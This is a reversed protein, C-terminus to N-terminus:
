AASHQEATAKEQYAAAYQLCAKADDRFERAQDRCEEAAQPNGLREFNDAARDKEVAKADFKASDRRAADAAASWGQARTGPTTRILDSYKNPDVAMTIGGNKSTVQPAPHHRPPPPPPLDQDVNPWKPKKPKRPQDPDKTPWKPRITQAAAEEVLQSFETNRGVQGKDDIGVTFKKLPKVKDTSSSASKSSRLLAKWGTKVGRSVVLLAKWGKPKPTSKSSSARKPKRTKAKGGGPSGDRGKSKHKGGPAGM